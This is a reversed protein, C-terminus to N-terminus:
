RRLSAAPAEAPVRGVYVLSGGGDRAQGNDTRLRWLHGDRTDLILVGGPPLALAYYRGVPDACALSPALLSAIAFVAYRTV